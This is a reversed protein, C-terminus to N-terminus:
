YINELDFDVALILPSPAPCTPDGNADAGQELLYMIAEESKSGIAWNLPKGYISVKEMDCGKGLLFKMM